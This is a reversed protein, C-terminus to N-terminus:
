GAVRQEEGAEGSSGSHGNHEPLDLNPQQADCSEFFALSFSHVLTERGVSQCEKKM